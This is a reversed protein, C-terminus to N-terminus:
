AQPFEKFVNTRAQTRTHTVGFFYQFSPGNIEHIQCTLLKKGKMFDAHLNKKFFNATVRSFFHDRTTCSDYIQVFFTCHLSFFYISRDIM